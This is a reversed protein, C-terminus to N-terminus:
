NNELSKYYEYKKKADEKNSELLITAQEENINKLMSYRTQSNLFEDYLDFDVDKSDLTFKAEVPNYRFTPFYGSKTALKENEICNELGGKIGHAICPAYAIIISPGKYSEAENFAKILQVPNAGLNVQAVYVHPYSLAIRALDKRHNAKGSTAFAAISGIPSAKSSQGGTNSYVQTDLILINVDDNSALIHDIGGFGIDYAWGDGGIMWISRSTIYEKLEVLEKPVTNYDLKEYVEKTIKYDDYNDLWTKFLEHNPNDMNNEMINKIRNRITNNAVLMGYGYEANDEFLSSAWPIRYPMSPVSAGYISSCGTANAIIMKDGFLQTLLRIYGTEGCGACAGHFEFKPEKFQSGKVTNVNVLEKYAVNNFLYDAIEQEHNKIELDFDMPILAKEGAKGPCTKM